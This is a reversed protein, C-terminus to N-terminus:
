GNLLKRRKIETTIEDITHLFPFDPYYSRLLNCARVPFPVDLGATKVLNADRFFSDTSGDFIVRGEKLTIIRKSLAFAEDMNHTVFIVTRDEHIKGIYNMISMKGAYDLGSTPEDLILYTPNMAIISAIAVRRKEGGSLGFPSKELYSDDLGVDLMARLVNERAADESLGFNKPGYAVEEFVTEAFFQSEPHQFVIGVKKVIEKRPIHRETINFEDVTVEGVTPSLLGNFLEILTSKGSGIRGVIAVREGCDIKLSVDHLAEKKFLTHPDYVVSVNTLELM